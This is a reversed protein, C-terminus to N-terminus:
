IWIQKNPQFSYTLLPKGICFSKWQRINKILIFHSYFWFSIFTAIVEVYVAFPMVILAVLLDAVALHLILYNIRSHLFRFRIISIIVLVNGFITLLPITLLSFAWDNKIEKFITSFTLIEKSTENSSFEEEGSGNRIKEIIEYDLKEM